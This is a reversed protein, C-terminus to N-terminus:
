RPKKRSTRRFLKKIKEASKQKSENGERSSKFADKLKNIKVDKRELDKKNRARNLDVINGM